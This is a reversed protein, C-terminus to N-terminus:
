KIEGGKDEPTKGNDGYLMKSVEGNGVGASVGLLDHWKNSGRSIAIGIVVRIAMPMDLLFAPLQLQSLIDAPLSRLFYPTAICLALSVALSWVKEYGVTLKAPLWEKIGDVVWQVVSIMVAGFGLIWVLTM